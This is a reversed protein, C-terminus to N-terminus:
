RRNSVEFERYEAYRHMGKSNKMDIRLENSRPYIGQLFTTFINDLGLWFKKQLQGFGKTIGIEVSTLLEMLEVSFSQGDEAM